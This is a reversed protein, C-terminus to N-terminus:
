PIPKEWLSTGAGAMGMSTHEAISMEAFGLTRLLERLPGLRRYPIATRLQSVAGAALHGELAALAERALGQGRHEPLILLMGLLAVEATPRGAWWGLAGVDTGDARTVVAATRGPQAQSQRLERLATDPAPGQVGAIAQFYDHAGDYVRQLREAHEPALPLIVLRESRIEIPDPQTM